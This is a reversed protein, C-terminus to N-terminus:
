RFPPTSQQPFVFPCFSAVSFQSSKGGPLVIKLLGTQTIVILRVEGLHCINSGAGRILFGLRFPTLHGHM